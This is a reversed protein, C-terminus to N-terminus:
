TVRPMKGLAKFLTDLRELQVVTPPVSLVSLAKRALLRAAARRVNEGPASQPVPTARFDAWEADAAVLDAVSVEMAESPDDAAVSARRKKSKKQGADCTM